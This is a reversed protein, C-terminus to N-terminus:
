SAESRVWTNAYILLLIGVGGCISKARAEQATGGAALQSEGLLRAVVRALGFKGKQMAVYAGRLSAWNLWEHELQGQEYM